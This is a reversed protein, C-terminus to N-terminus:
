PPRRGHGARHVSYCGNLSVEHLLTMLQQHPMSLECLVASQTHCQRGMLAAHARNPASQNVGQDLGQREDQSRIKLRDWRMWCCRAPARVQGAPATKHGNSIRVHVGSAGLGELWAAAVASVCTGGRPNEGHLMLQSAQKATM